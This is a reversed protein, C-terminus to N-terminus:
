KRCGTEYNGVTKWPLRVSNFPLSNHFPRKKWVTEYSGVTKLPLRVSNFPLSNPFPRKKCVTEYIGQRKGTYVYVALRYPNIFRRKKCVTEYITKWHKPVSIRVCQPIIRNFFLASFRHSSKQGSIKLDCIVLKRCKQSNETVKRFIACKKM